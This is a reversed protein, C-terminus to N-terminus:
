YGLDKCLLELSTMPINSSEALRKLEELNAKAGEQNLIECVIVVPNVECKEALAIAAETHGFRLTYDEVARLPATHGPVVFDARRSEPNALLRITQARDSASVGTTIGKAADVLTCFNTGHANENHEVMLKFGLRDIVTHHCAVCIMGKAKEFLFNIDDPKINEALIFFDGEAERHEDFVIVFNGQSFTEYFESLPTFSM